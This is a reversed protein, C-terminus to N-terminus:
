RHAVRQKTSVSSALTMPMALFRRPTSGTQWDHYCRRVGPIGRGFIRFAAVAMAKIVGPTAAIRRRAVRRGILTM